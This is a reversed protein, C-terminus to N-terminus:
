GSDLHLKELCKVQSHTTSNGAGGEGPFEQPSGHAGGHSGQTLTKGQEVGVETCQLSKRRWM